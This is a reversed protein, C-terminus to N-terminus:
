DRAARVANDVKFYDYERVQRVQYIGPPIIIQKHEEHRLTFYDDAKCYLINTGREKYLLISEYVAHAHGSAEGRALIYRGNEPPMIELNDPLKEVSQILIDGQQYLM